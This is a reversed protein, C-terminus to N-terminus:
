QFSKGKDLIAFRPLTPCLRYLLGAATRGRTDAAHRHSATAGGAGPPSRPRSHLDPLATRLTDLADTEDTAHLVVYGHRELSLRVANGLDPEGDAVLIRRGEIMLPGDMPFKHTM